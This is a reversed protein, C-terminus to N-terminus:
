KVLKFNQLVDFKEIMNEHGTFLYLDDESFIVCLNKITRFYFMGVQLNWSLSTILPKM